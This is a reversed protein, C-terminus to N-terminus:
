LYYGAKVQWPARGNMMERQRREVEELSSSSALYKEEQSMSKKITCASKIKNIVQKFM